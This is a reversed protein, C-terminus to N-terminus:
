LPQPPLASGGFEPPTSVSPLVGPWVPPPTSRELLDGLRPYRGGLFYLLYAQVFTAVTGAALLMLYIMAAFLLPGGIVGALVWLVPTPVGLLHLGFGLAGGILALVLAILLLVLEVALNVAMYGVLIFVFKMLAYLAVQGPEYRILKFLRTFAEGLTTDELALSPVIFDNALAAIAFLFLFGFLIMFYGSFLAAIFEPTPPQNPRQAIGQMLPILHRIYSALPAALLLTAFTGYLVKCATWRRSAPGYLRWAPAVFEGRNLVIDFFAFGLRSCLHFLFIFLAAGLLVLTLISALFVTGLPPLFPLFALYAAPWPVFLIGAFSLYGSAALKWTRGPRFPTFLVLRTRDFAPSLADFASLPRM